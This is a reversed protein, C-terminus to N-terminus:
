DNLRTSKKFKWIVLGLIVVFPIVMTLPASQEMQESTIEISDFTAMYAFVLALGNHFFHGLIAYSLKGSWHYLYGFLAGLLMRPFFGYFQLHIASFLAASVWIALHPNASIRRLLNQLLGRFLLEEGLAPILAVVVLAIMLQGSGEFNILYETIEKMQAEKTIAWNEFAGDPLDLGINWEIIVTIVVLNSLIILVTWGMAVLNTGKFYNESAGVGYRILIFPIVFFILFSSVGQTLLVTIRDMSQVSSLDTNSVAGLLVYVGLYAITVGCLIIAKKFTLTNFDRLLIDPM